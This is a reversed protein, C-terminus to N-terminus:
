SCFTPSRGDALLDLYTFHARLQADWAQEKMAKVVMRGFGADTELAQRAEAWQQDSLEAGVLRGVARRAKAEGVGDLIRRFEGDTPARGLRKTVLKRRPDAARLVDGLAKAIMLDFGGARRAIQETARDADTPVAELSLAVLNPKQAGKQKLGLPRVRLLGLGLGAHAQAGLRSRRFAIEGAAAAVKCTGVVARPDRGVCVPVAAGDRPLTLGTDTLRVPAVLAPGQIWPSQETLDPHM